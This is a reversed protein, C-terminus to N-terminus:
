YKILLVYCKYYKKKKNSNLCFNTLCLQRLILIGDKMAALKNTPGERTCYHFFLMRFNILPIDHRSKPQFHRVDASKPRKSAIDSFYSLADKKPLTVVPEDQEQAEAKPPPLPKSSGKFLLFDEDQVSEAPTTYLDEYMDDTIATEDFLRNKQEKANTEQKPPEKSKDEKIQENKKTKQADIIQKSFAVVIYKFKQLCNLQLPVISKLKPRVKRLKLKKIVM